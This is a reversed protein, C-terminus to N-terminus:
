VIRRDIAAYRETGEKQLDSLKTTANLVTVNPDDQPMLSSLEKMLGGFPDTKAM